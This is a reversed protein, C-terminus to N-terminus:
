PAPQERIFGGFKWEGGVGGIRNMRIKEVRELGELFVNMVVEGTGTYEQRLVRIGSISAVDNKHKEVIEGESKDQWIKAMREQESPALSDLYSRPNGEKMSWIASVLAAEPSAYGAFGWSERPFARTTNTATSSPSGATSKLQALESKLRENETAVTEVNRSGTRLQTVENRLQMLESTQKRLKESQVHAIDVVNSSSNVETELAEVKLRLQENDLALLVARRWNVIAAVAAILVLVSYIFREVRM